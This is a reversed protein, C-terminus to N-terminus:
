PDEWLVRAGGLGNFSFIERHGFVFSNNTLSVTNLFTFAAMGTYDEYSPASEWYVRKRYNAVAITTTV